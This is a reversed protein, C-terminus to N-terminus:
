SGNAGRQESESGLGVGPMRRGGFGTRLTGVTGDRGSINNFIRFGEDAGHVSGNVQVKSVEGFALKGRRM